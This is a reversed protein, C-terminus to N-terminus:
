VIMDMFLTSYFCIPVLWRGPWPLILAPDDQNEIVWTPELMNAIIFRGDLFGNPILYVHLHWAYKAYWEWGGEVFGTGFGKCSRECCSAEGAEEQSGWYGHQPVVAQWSSQQREMTRNFSLHITRQYHSDPPIPINLSCRSNSGQSCLWFLTCHNNIHWTRTRCSSLSCFKHLWNWRIDLLKRM